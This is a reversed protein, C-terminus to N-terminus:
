WSSRVAGVVFTAISRLLSGMTDVRQRHREGAGGPTTALVRGAGSAEAIRAATRSTMTVVVRGILRHLAWRALIGLVIILLVRLGDTLLWHQVSDWYTDGDHRRPRLPRRRPLRDTVPM